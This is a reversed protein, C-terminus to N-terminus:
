KTPKLLELQKTFLKQTVLNRFYLARADYMAFVSNRGEQTFIEDIYPRMAIIMKCREGNYKAITRSDWVTFWTSKEKTFKIISQPTFVPGKYIRSSDIDIVNTFTSFEPTLIDSITGQRRKIYAETPPMYDIVCRKKRLYYRGFNEPIFNFAALIDSAEELCNAMFFVRIHQKISRAVNELQNVLNYVIDFYNRENRERQFEDVAINYYMGPNNILFDKDFLAVGKDKAMSSLSLVTAMKRGHDYVNMGRTKLDLSYKRCLDADIFKEANNALMKKVSVDSLRIWYFPNDKRKWQGTFFDAVSYSKGGERAGLLIYFMAWDNGLISRLSYFERDKLKLIKNEQM